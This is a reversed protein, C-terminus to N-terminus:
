RARAAEAKALLEQHLRRADGLPLPAVKRLHRHMQRDLVELERAEEPTLKADIDKDILDCRRDNKQKTWPTEEDSEGNDCASIPMLHALAQGNLEVVAGDPDVSLSLFFQKIAEGQTELEIHSMTSERQETSGSTLTVITSRIRCYYVSLEAAQIKPFSTDALRGM